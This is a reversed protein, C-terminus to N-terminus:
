RKRAVSPCVPITCGGKASTPRAIWWARVHEALMHKIAGNQGFALHHCTSTCAPVHKLGNTRAQVTKSRTGSRNREKSLCAAGFGVHCVMARNMSKVRGYRLQM